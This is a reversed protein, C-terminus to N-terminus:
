ETETNQLILMTPNIQLLFDFNRSWSSPTFDADNLPKLQLSRFYLDNTSFWKVYSLIM